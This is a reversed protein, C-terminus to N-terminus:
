RMSTHRRKKGGSPWRRSWRTVTILDQWNWQHLSILVPQSVDNIAYVTEEELEYHVTLNQVDLVLEDGEQIAKKKDNM